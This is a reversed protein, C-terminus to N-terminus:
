SQGSAQQAAVQAMHLIAPNAGPQAAIQAWRQAVLFPTAQQAQAPANQAPPPAAAQQQKGGRTAQQKSRRPTNMESGVVPAGSLPAARTLEAQRKVDGQTPRQTYSGFQNQGSPNPM